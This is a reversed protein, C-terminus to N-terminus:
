GAIAAESQRLADDAAEQIRPEIADWTWKQKFAAFAREAMAQGASRDRMLSICAEAFEAPRDALLLERGSQVDYGFAGLRTSVLPCKRSFADAIKVRTGAGHLIPVIMASWSAIEAAPDALFGLADVDPAAPKLPGDTDKGILRLHANPIEKKVLPWCERLFWKMGELNPQYSYLGIFGIRPPDAPQRVPDEAPREFGNPIVHIHEGGGLYERDSESCVSLTSFRERWALERRKLLQMQLRAKWKEKLGAGNKWVTRQFTSPVDDLDLVSRRWQWQNLINPTRSNGVWVLDFDAMRRLLRARDAAEAICGHVNLFHKDVAWRFRKVLGHNPLVEVKVPPEVTFEASTREIAEPTAADSSVVAVSVQGIKKLARGIHLTRLQGGFANQCPWCSVVYLIRPGSKM